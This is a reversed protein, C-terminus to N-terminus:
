EPWDDVCVILALFRLFGWMETPNEISAAPPISGGYPAKCSVMVQARKGM